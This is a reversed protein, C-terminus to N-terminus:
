VLNRPRGQQYARINDAVQEVLRQRSERSAWAIHPTVILKDSARGLMANDISPPEQELVDLAAAAIQNEDLAKLLAIEDVLGGRATNILIADKKMTTFAESNIMHHNEQTLPCHLTVVDSKSLLEDLPVRAEGPELAADTYHRKALLVEMGFCRAVKAVAQGLEGYGIIGMTKGELESIPEGFYCFFESRSWDGGSVSRNYPVLKRNLALLLSFVHQVVSSTAYARVNCVQIGSQKAAALDVNNVGTAAVCILKLCPSNKMVESDIIVKNTVLIEADKLSHRIDAPEANDFWQWDAVEQLLSFDLDGPYLSAKDLFVASPKTKTM